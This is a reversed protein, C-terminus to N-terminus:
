GHGGQASQVRALGSWDALRKWTDGYGIEFLSQRADFGLLKIHKVPPVLFLDAHGDEVLVQLQEKSGLMTSSTLVHVIRVNPEAVAASAGDTKTAGMGAAGVDIAIITSGANEREMVDVPVNNVIGGDVLLGGETRVPPFIGPLSCSARVVKWLPGRDHVVMRAGILDASVCFCSRWLDAVDLDEFAFQLMRDLKRGAFLSERPIDFDRLARVDPVREEFLALMQQPSWGRAYAAAIVAGMSTGGIVDVPVGAEELAQLAGIHALARAGGGGLVVGIPCDGIRRAAREFDAARDLRVHHHRRRREVTLWPATWRPVEVGAEHVLLVDIAIPSGDVVRAEFIDRVRAPASADRADAAVVIRDTQELCWNTWPTEERDCVLLLLRGQEEEGNCLAALRHRLVDRDVEAPVVGLIEAARRADIASGHGLTSTLARLLPEVVDDVAFGDGVPMLTFIRPRAVAKVHTRLAMEYFQRAQAVVLEPHAAMCALLADADLRLVTSDRMAIVPGSAPLRAVVFGLGCIDGRGLEILIERGARHAFRTERAQLRGHEVVYAAPPIVGAALLHHGSPVHERVAVRALSQLAGDSLGAFFDRERLAARLDDASVGTTSPDPV